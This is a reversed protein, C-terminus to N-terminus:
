FSFEFEHRVSESGSVFVRSRGKGGKATPRVELLDTATLSGRAEQQLITARAAEADGDGSGGGGPRSRVKEQPPACARRLVVGCSKTEPLLQYTQPPEPPNCLSLLCQYLVSETRRRRVPGDAVLRGSNSRIHPDPLKFRGGGLGRIDNAWPDPEALCVM